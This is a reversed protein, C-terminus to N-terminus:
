SKRVPRRRQRQLMQVRELLRRREVRVQATQGRVSTSEGPCVPITPRLEHLRARFPETGVASDKSEESGGVPVQAVRV